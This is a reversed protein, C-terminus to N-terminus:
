EPSVGVVKRHLVETRCQLSAGLSVVLAGDSVRGCCECLWLQAGVYCIAVFSSLLM